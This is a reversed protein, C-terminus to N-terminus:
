VTNLVPGPSGMYARDSPGRRHSRATQDAPAFRALRPPDPARRGDFFGCARYYRLDILWTRFYDPQKIAAAVHRGWNRPLLPELLEGPDRFCEWDCQRCAPAVPTHGTGLCRFADDAAEPRYGCPAVRGTRADAFFFDVGGRCPYMPDPRAGSYKAVLGQLATRPTFIRLQHRFRVLTDDLAQFLIAKEPATFRVVRDASWAAYGGSGHDPWGMPYCANAMTFGLGIALHYFNTFAARFYEYFGAEGLSELDANDRRGGVWRNIGLNVAPYLGREHFLPLARTVGDVVGPLGRMQEHTAPDAADLSIWFNRVPTATLRDILPAVRDRFRAPTDDNRWCLWFGNTGTRLLPIGRRGAQHLLELLQDAHLFPEGGTFSLAAVRRVVCADILRHATEPSLTFRRGGATTRMGCQPCLANCADTLQVVMQAPLRNHRWTRLFPLTPRHKM